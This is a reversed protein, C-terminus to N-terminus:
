AQPNKIGTKPALLNSVYTWSGMQLRYADGLTSVFMVRDKQDKFIRERQDGRSM